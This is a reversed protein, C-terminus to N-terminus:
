QCPNKWDVSPLLIDMKNIHCGVGISECTRYLQKSILATMATTLGLTSYLASVHTESDYVYSMISLM